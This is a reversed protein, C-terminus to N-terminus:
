LADAFGQSSGQILRDIVAEWALVCFLIGVRGRLVLFSEGLPSQFHATDRMPISTSITSRNTSSM